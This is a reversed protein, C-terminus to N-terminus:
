SVTITGNGKIIAIHTTSNLEIDGTVSTITAGDMGQAKNYDGTTPAQVTLSSSADIYVGQSYRDGIFPPQDTDVYIINVEIENATNNIITVEAIGGGSGGADDEDIFRATGGGQKPVNLAPVSSYDQGFLTIDKSM